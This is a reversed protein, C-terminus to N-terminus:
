IRLLNQEYGKKLLSTFWSGQRSFRQIAIPGPVFTFPYYFALRLCMDYDAEVLLSEDFFGVKQFVERRVLLTNFQVFNQLLFPRFVDGSPAQRAEPWVTSEWEGGIIYQGYLLGSEPNAELLPVYGKLRHPLWLDDDDLFAIYKGTSARVGANRAGAVRQNTELRIYKVGPYQRMVEPTADPSADDVVIVELDFLEGVGEQAYVSDLAEPLLAARNYTPVIVSVLPKM